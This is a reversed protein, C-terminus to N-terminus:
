ELDFMRKPKQLIVSTKPQKQVPKQAPPIRPAPSRQAPRQAQRQKQEVERTHKCVRSGDDAVRRTWGNCNCSTSGDEYLLTTYYVEPNSASQYVYQQKIAKKMALDEGTVGFALWMITAGNVSPILQFTQKTIKISEVACVTNGITANASVGYSDIAFFPVPLTITIGFVSVDSAIGSHVAM